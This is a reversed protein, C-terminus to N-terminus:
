SEDEDADVRTQVLTIYEIGQKNGIMSASRINYIRDAYLLRRNAPVDIADPDMDATYPGHWQTEKYASDQASAYREDARLDLRSMRVSRLTEWTDGPYGGETPVTRQEITVLKDRRGSAARSKGGLVARGVPM